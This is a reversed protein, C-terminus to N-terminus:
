VIYIEREHLIMQFIGKCISYEIPYRNAMGCTNKKKIKFFFIQTRSDINTVDKSNRKKERASHTHGPPEM